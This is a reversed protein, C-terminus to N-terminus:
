QYKKFMDILQCATAATTAFEFGNYCLDKFGASAMPKSTCISDKVTSAGIDVALCLKRGNKAADKAGDQIAKAFKKLRGSTAMEKVVDYARKLAKVPLGAVQTEELTLAVNDSNLVPNLTKIENLEEIEEALLEIGFNKLDYAIPLGYIKLGEIESKARDIEAASVATKTNARSLNAVLEEYKPLTPKTISDASDASDASLGAAGSSKQDNRCANLTLVGCLLLSSALIKASFKM